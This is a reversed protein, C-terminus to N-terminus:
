FDQFDEDMPIVEDPNVEKGKKVAPAKQGVAKRPAADPLQKIERRHSRGYASKQGNIKNKSGGVLGVLEQVVDKMSEAQASLEESASASEEASAANKQTVKDMQTMATNVQEIGQAQESSASAIENVLDGVKGANEMVEEFAQDTSKVLQNGHDIKNITNEILEATNGAAGAARQALNRVEDAVVAFGAGAEGARAAEVAANLALLNTQFAIEDITKIIKGIEQGSVAIEEMSQTMQKMSDGARNVVTLTEDMLNKAHSANGANAKTMSAMEELSATTEELAAANESAGEALEQSASSVQGSASGVQDAGASLANIIRRVPKTIRSTLFWAMFLGMAIGILTIIGSLVQANSIQSNMGAMQEARTENCAKQVGEAATLMAQKSEEQQGMIVAVRALTRQYVGVAVIVKEIQAKNEDTSFRSKMSEALKLIDGLQKNAADLWQQEGNNLLYKQENLRANQFMKILRNADDTLSIKDNLAVENLNQVNRLEIMQDMQISEALQELWESNTTMKEAAKGEEGAVSLATYESFADSYGKAAEIMQDALDKNEPNEFREKMGNAFDIIQEVREQLTHFYSRKKHIVYSMEAIRAEKTWRIIQNAMDAITQKDEVAAAAKERDERLQKEQDAKIQECLDMATKARSEMQEIFRAKSKELDTYQIFEQRYAAAQMNVADMQEKGAAQDIQDKVKGTLALLDQVKQDVKQIDEDKKTIIFNKEQQRAELVYTVMQNVDEAQEVGSVVTLLGRFGVGAVLCLLILVLAFGAFIKTGLKMNKFMRCGKRATKSQVEIREWV